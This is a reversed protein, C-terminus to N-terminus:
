KDVAAALQEVAQSLQLLGKGIKFGLVEIAGQGGEGTNYAGDNGLSRVQSALNNIADAIMQAGQDTM